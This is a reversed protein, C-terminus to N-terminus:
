KAVNGPLWTVGTIWCRIWQKSGFGPAPFLQRVLEGYSAPKSRPRDGRDGRQHEQQGGKRPRGARMVADGRSIRSGSRTFGPPTTTTRPSSRPASSAICDRQMPEAPRVSSVVTVLSPWPWKVTAMSTEGRRAARLRRSRPSRGPWRVTGSNTSPAGTELPSPAGGPWSSPRGATIGDKATPAERAWRRPAAHWVAM